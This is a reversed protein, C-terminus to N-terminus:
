STNRLYIELIRVGTDFVLHVDKLGKVCIALIGRLFTAGILECSGLMLLLAGERVSVRIRLIKILNRLIPSFHCQLTKM